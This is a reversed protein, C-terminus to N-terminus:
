SLFNVIECAGVNCFISCYMASDAIFVYEAIIGDAITCFFM